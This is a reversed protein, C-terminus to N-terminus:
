TFDERVKGRIGWSQGPDALCDTSNARLQISLLLPLQVGSSTVPLCWQGHAKFESPYQHGVPMCAHQTAENRDSEKHGCSSYGEPEATWPIRWALISSHTAM